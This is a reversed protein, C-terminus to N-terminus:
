KGSIKKRVSWYKKQYRIAKTAKLKEIHAELRHVKSELEKIRSKHKAIASDRKEIGTLLKGDRDLEDTLLAYVDSLERALEGIKKNARDALALAEPEQRPTTM